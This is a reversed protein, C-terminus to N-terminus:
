FKGSTVGDVRLITKKLKEVKINTSPINISIKEGALTTTGITLSLFLTMLIKM